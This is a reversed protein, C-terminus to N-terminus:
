KQYVRMFFYDATFTERLPVDVGSHDIDVQSFHKLMEEKSIEVGDFMTYPFRFKIWRRGSSEMGYDVIYDELWKQDTPVITDNPIIM